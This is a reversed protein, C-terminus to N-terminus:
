VLGLVTPLGVHAPQPAGMDPGCLGDRCPFPWSAKGCSACFGCSVAQACVALTNTAFVLGVAALVGQGASVWFGITVSGLITYLLICGAAVAVAGALPVERLQTMVAEAARRGAHHAAGAAPRGGEQLGDAGARKPRGAQQPAGPQGAGSGRHPGPQGPRVCGSAIIDLQLCVVTAASLLLTFIPHSAAKTELIHVM